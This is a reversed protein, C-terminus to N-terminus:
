YAGVNPIGGPWLVGDFNSSPANKLVGKGIAPSGSKLHYDGSSVSGTDNVFQPSALITGTPASSTTGYNYGNNYFLNNVYTYGSVSGNEVIGANPSNVVINNGVYGNSNTVSSGAIIIGADLCHMVTNNMVILQTAYHYSTICDSSVTSVLNDYIFGVPDALYIGQVTNCLTKGSGPGINYVMNSAVTTDGGSYTNQGIGTGGTGDCGGAGLDHVKNNIISQHKANADIGDRTAGYIEFGNVEQYDGNMQWGAVAGTANIVAGWKTTSVFRIKGSSTGGATSTVGNPFNYIGPSVCITSGAAASNAYNQLALATSVTVTCSISTSVGSGSLNIVQPSNSANDNLTLVGTRTGAVTPTFVISATCSAGPALSFQCTGKDGFRFDGSITFDGNFSLTANGTNTVTVFQLASTSGVTQNAFVLSSAPSLSVKPASAALTTAGAINSYGSYKTTGYSTTVNRVRYYYLTGSSLSSNLYSKTGGAVSAIVSFGSSYSRSREISISGSSTSNVWALQISSSSVAKASLSSPSAWAGLAIINVAFFVMLQNSFIREARIRM